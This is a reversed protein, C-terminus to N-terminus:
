LYENIGYIYKKCSQESKKETQNTRRNKEKDISNIRM